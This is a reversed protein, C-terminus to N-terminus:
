NKIRLSDIISIWKKYINEIKFIEKKLNANKVLNSRLNEDKLLLEIKLALDEPKSIECLLGDFGDKILEKAGRTKTSIRAVEFYISEMLVNPLGEKLSSSVIIKAKKYIKSIDYLNGLFETNLNLNLALNELDKKQEGDGIIQIKYNKLLNKDVLSLAKIFTKPDKIPTLRGVFIILNEKKFELKNPLDFMPNPMIFKNKIFDFEDFDEKTLVTLADAKKYFFKILLNLLNFKNKYFSTHESIILPKKASFNSIISLINTTNMFSIVFDFEKMIKSQAKIKKFVRFPNFGKKEFALNILEVEDYIKYFSRNEDFKLICVEHFKSFHNALNALIREAGGSNLNTIIFLIKM